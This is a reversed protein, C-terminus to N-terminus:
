IMARDVICYENKSIVLVKIITKNKRLVDKITGISRIISISSRSLDIVIRSSQKKAKRLRSILTDQSNGHLHKLEWLEDRWVIDATKIINSETICFIDDGFKLLKTIIMMEHEHLIRGAEIKILGPNKGKPFRSITPYIALPLKANNKSYKKQPMIFIMGSLSLSLSM